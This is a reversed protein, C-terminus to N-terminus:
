AAPEIRTSGVAITAALREPAVIAFPVRRALELLAKDRTALADARGRAALALLKQDDRDRCAPLRGPNGDAVRECARLYDELAAQAVAKRAALAPADLVRAIEALCADDTLPVLDGRRWAARLPELAPDAFALIAVLVNTDLM